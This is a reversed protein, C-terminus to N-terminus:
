PRTGSEPEPSLDYLFYSGTSDAHVLRFGSADVPHGLVAFRAGYRTAVKAHHEPPLADYRARIAMLTQGMPKPLDLLGQTDLGLVDQLRDRWEPLEAGLQPVGKFNVVIGRRAHVRFSEEDPPVLFVADKLTNERAWEALERYGADDGQLGALKLGLPSRWTPPALLGSSLAVAGAAVATVVLAAVVCARRRWHDWLLWAVAICSLLKPYISFRYLNLQVFTEGLFWFGATFLAFAIMLVFLLFLTRARRRADACQEPVPAYAAVLVVVIPALFSLWVGWHWQTPDFHHPHRLRVFLDVFEGTPLKASRNLVVRAAPVIQLASLAIVAVSGVWWQKHRITRGGELLTAGAWLGIGAVAHNIHFMGAIGLCTGAAAPRGGVWFCVAWLIAVNSINSPLFASDQLFHYMGLGVGGAMLYYLVVSVLYTGDNGGLRVALSRWGVHLLVALLLYGVLFAPELLGARMLAATMANFVFHYQLTSNAWWDNRLLSPDTRRLADVLYVAHNSEGFRYGRVALTILVGVTLSLFSALPRPSLPVLPAADAAESRRVIESV